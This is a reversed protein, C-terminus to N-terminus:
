STQNVNYSIMVAELVGGSITRMKDSISFCTSKDNVSDIEALQTGALVKVENRLLGRLMGSIPAKLPLDELYGIIDEAAVKDGLNKGTTFIGSDEAQIIKNTDSSDIEPHNGTKQTSKGEFVLKGLDCGPSSEILIHVNEGVTFGPGIGIVLPADNIRTNTERKLMMANVLVDPKILARVTLEPDAVVPINENRWVRYIHELSPDSREATVDEITKTTDYIAESFCSGRRIALPSATETICVRFHSRHLRHAIASGVEGGGRVLVILDSLNRM